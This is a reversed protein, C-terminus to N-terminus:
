EKPMKTYGKLWNIMINYKLGYHEACEKASDFIINDCEIKKKKSENLKDIHEQTFKKGNELTSLTKGKRAESMKRKTEESHKYGRTSEGGITMNYGNSKEAHIYTNYKEIYCNEKEDLEDLECEEIIEFKFNEIGYKRMTKYLVQNEINSYYRHHYWM